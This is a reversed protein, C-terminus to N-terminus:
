DTTTVFLDLEDVFPTASGTSEMGDFAKLLELYMRQSNLLSAPPDQLKLPRGKVSQKDNLLTQMDGEKIWLNELGSIDQGNALAKGLFIGNIGGASTGSLIDVIFRTRIPENDARTKNHQTGLK